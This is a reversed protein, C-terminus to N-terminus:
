RELPPLACPPVKTGGFVGDDWYKNWSDRINCSNCCIQRFRNTDHSHDLCADTSINNGTRTLKVDCSSCLEQTLYLEYIRDLEEPSEQLDRQKWKSITNVKKGAPSQRYNREREKVKEPNEERYKKYRAKEKELNNERYKKKSAKKKEPNAERWKREREKIKEPNEERYKKGNVRTQAKLREKREDVSLENVEARTMKRSLYADSHAEVM